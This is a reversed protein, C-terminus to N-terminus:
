ARNERRVRYFAVKEVPNLDPSCSPPFRKLGALNSQEKRSAPNIPM